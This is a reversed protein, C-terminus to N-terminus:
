SQKKKIKGGKDYRTGGSKIGARPAGPKVRSVRRRTTKTKAM